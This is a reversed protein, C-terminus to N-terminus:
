SVVTLVTMIYFRTAFKMEYFPYSHFHEYVLKM